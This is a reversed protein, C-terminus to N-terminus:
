LRPKIVRVFVDGAALDVAAGTPNWIRVNVADSQAQAFFPLVTALGFSAQAFDGPRADTLTVNFNHTAGAAISPPDTAAALASLERTGWRRGGGYLVQPHHLAPAYLRLARLVGAPQSSGV